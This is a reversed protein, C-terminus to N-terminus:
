IRKETYWLFAGKQVAGWFNSVCSLLTCNMELLKKNSITPHVNAMVTKINDLLQKKHTM